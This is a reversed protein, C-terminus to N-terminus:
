LSPPSRVDRAVSRRSRGGGAGAGAGAVAFGLLCRSLWVCEDQFTDGQSLPLGFVHTLRSGGRHGTCMVNRIWMLLEAESAAAGSSSRPTATRPRGGVPPSAPSIKDGWAVAGIPCLNGPSSSARVALSRGTTM